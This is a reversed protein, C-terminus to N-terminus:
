ILYKHDHPKFTGDDLDLVGDRFAFYQGKSDISSIVNEQRVLRSLVNTIRKQHGDGGLKKSLTKGSKYQGKLYKAMSEDSETSIAVGIYECYEDVLRRLAAIADKIEFANDRQQWSGYREATPDKQYCYWSNSTSCWVVNGDIQIVNLVAAIDEDTM